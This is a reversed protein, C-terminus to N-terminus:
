YLLGAALARWEAGQQHEVRFTGDSKRIVCRYAQDDLQMQYAWRADTHAPTVKTRNVLDHDVDLPNAHLGVEKQLFYLCKKDLEAPLQRNDGTTGRFSLNLGMAGFDLEPNMDDNIQCFFTGDPAAFQFLFANNGVPIATETFKATAAAEGSEAIAKLCRDRLATKDVAQAAGNGALFLFAALLFRIAM